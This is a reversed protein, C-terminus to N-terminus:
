RYRLIDKIEKELYPLSILYPKDYDPHFIGLKLDSIRIGYNKELIYKYLSLQLAYHYYSTDHIHNIPAKAKTGYRSIKVIQGNKIIKSSRKWDYIVYKGNQYDVFDITGAIGHDEDYVAWETRYPSLKVQGAFQKFLRFTDDEESQINQYYNEIKKHMATGLDRSEKGKREWMALVAEKSMGLQVAKRRAFFDANFPPFCSEVITTVSQLVKGNVTYIHSEDNFSIKSDRCHKNKRNYEGNCKDIEERKRQEASRERAEQEAKMLRDREESILQCWKDLLYRKIFVTREDNTKRNVVWKYIAKSFYPKIEVHILNCISSIHYIKSETKRQSIPDNLWLDNYQKEFCSAMYQEISARHDFLYRFCKNSTFSQILKHKLEEQEEITDSIKLKNVYIARTLTCDGKYNTLEDLNPPLSELLSLSSKLSELKQKNESEKENRDRISSKVADIDTQVVTNGLKEILYNRILDVYRSTSSMIPIYYREVFKYEDDTNFYKFNLSEGLYCKSIAAYESTKINSIISKCSAESIDNVSLVDPIRGAKFNGLTDIDFESATRNQQFNVNAFKICFKPVIVENEYYLLVLKAKNSKDKELKEKFGIIESKRSLFYLISMADNCINYLPVNRYMLAYLKLDEYHHSLLDHFSEYKAELEKYEAKHENSINEWRGLLPVGYEKIFAIDEDTYSRQM